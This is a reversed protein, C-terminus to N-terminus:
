SRPTPPPSTKVDKEKEYKKELRKLWKRFNEEDFSSDSNDYRSKKSMVGPLAVEVPLRQTLRPNKTAHVACLSLIVGSVRTSSSRACLVLSVMSVLRCIKGKGVLATCVGLRGQQFFRKM